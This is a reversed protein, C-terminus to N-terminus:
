SSPTPCTLEIEAADASAGQEAKRAERLELFAERNGGIPRGPKLEEPPPMELGMPEAKDAFLSLWSSARLAALYHCFQRAATAAPPRVPRRHQRWRLSGRGLVM